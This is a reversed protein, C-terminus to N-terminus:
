RHEKKGVVEYLVRVVVGCVYESLCYLPSHGKAESIWWSRFRNSCRLVM